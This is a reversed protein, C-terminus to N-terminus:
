SKEVERQYAEKGEHFAQGLGEAVHRASEVGGRARSKVTEIGENAKDLAGRGAEALRRRTEEGPAPSLLLAVSAGLLAGAGFVVFDSGRHDSM